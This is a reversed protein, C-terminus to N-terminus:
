SRAGSEKRLVSMSSGLLYKQDETHELTLGSSEYSGLKNNAKPNWPDWTFSALPHQDCSRQMIGAILWSGKIHKCHRSHSEYVPNSEISCPMHVHVLNWLSKAPPISDHVDFNRLRTTETAFTFSSPETIQLMLPRYSSSIRLTCFAIQEATSSISPPLNWSSVQVLCPPPPPM